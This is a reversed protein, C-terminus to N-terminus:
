DNLDMASMFTFFLVKEQTHKQKNQHKKILKVIPNKVRFERLLKTPKSNRDSAILKTIVLKIGLFSAHFPIRAPAPTREPTPPVKHKVEIKFGEKKIKPRDTLM